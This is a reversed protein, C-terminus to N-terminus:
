IESIILNLMLFAPITLIIRNSYFPGRHGALSFLNTMLHSM